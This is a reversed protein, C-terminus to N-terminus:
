GGVGAGIAAGIGGAIASHLLKKKTSMTNRVRITGARCPKIAAASENPEVLEYYGDFDYFTEFDSDAAEPSPSAAVAPMAYTLAFMSSLLFTSIIKKM